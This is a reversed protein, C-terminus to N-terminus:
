RPLRMGALSQVASATVRDPLEPLLTAVASPISAPSVIALQVTRTGVDFLMVFYRPESPRVFAAGPGGSPTAVAGATAEQSTSKDILDVDAALASVDCQDGCPGEGIYGQYGFFNTSFVDLNMADNNDNVVEFANLQGCGDGNFWMAPDKAYCHCDGFKGSRVLEGHSVGIWPADYWNDAPDNGCHQDAPITGDGAHPMSILMVILKSGSWGYHKPQDAPTAPCYPVSGPGCPFMQDTAVDVLCQNGVTGQFATDPTADGDFSLGQADNASRMDWAAVRLWDGSNAALPQYIVLQRVSMPGRLTMILDEDWPTLATSTLEHKTMCCTDTQVADCEGSAPDRRSPYWGAAGIEQFTITGGHSATVMAGADFAGLGGGDIPPTSGDIAQAADNPHVVGGDPQGPLMEDMGPAVGGAIPLGSDPASPDVNPPDSACALLCFTMGIALRKVTM